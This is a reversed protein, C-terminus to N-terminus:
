LKQKKVWEFLRAICDMIWESFGLFSFGIFLGLMGGVNGVLSMGTMLLYEMHVTKYPKKSRYDRLRQDAEKLGEELEFNYEMVFSDEPDFYDWNWSENIWKKYNDEDSIYDNDTQGYKLRLGGHPTSKYSFEKINCLRKCDEIPNIILDM